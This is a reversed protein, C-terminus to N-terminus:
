RGEPLGSKIPFAKANCKIIRKAVYDQTNYGNEITNYEQIWRIEACVVKSRVYGNCELREKPNDIEELIYISYDAGYKEYDKQM